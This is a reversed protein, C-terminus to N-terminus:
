HLLNMAKGILVYNLGESTSTDATEAIRDLDKQFSRAMGLLAVQPFLGSSCIRPSTLNLSVINFFDIM